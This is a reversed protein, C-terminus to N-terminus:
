AVHETHGLMGTAHMCCQQCSVALVEALTQESVLELGDDDDDDDAAAAASPVASPVASPAASPASPHATGAPRLGPSSVTRANVTNFTSAPGPAAASARGAPTSLLLGSDEM